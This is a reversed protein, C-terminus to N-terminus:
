DMDLELSVLCLEEDVDAAITQNATANKAIAAAAAKDGKVARRNLDNWERHARKLAEMGGFRERFTQYSMAARQNLEQWTPHRGIQVVIRHYEVLLDDRTYKLRRRIPPAAEFGADIRLQPWLVLLAGVSEPPIKAYKLFQSLTIGPGLELVAEKLKRVWPHGSRDQM